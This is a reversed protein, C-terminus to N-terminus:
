FSSAGRVNLLLPTHHHGTHASFLMGFVMLEKALPPEGLSPKWALQIERVGMHGASNLPDDPNPDTCISEPLVLLLVQEPEDGEAISTYNPRGPFM